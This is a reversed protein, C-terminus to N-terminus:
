PISEFDGLGHLVRTIDFRLREMRRMGNRFTLYARRGAEIDAKEIPQRAYRNLSVAHVFTQYDPNDFQQAIREVFNEPTEGNVPGQGMHALLTLIARYLIMAAQSASEAQGSLLIPDAQPM